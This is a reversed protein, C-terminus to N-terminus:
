KVTSYRKCHMKAFQTLKRDLTIWLANFLKSNHKNSMKPQMHVNRTLNVYDSVAWTAFNMPGVNPGGPDQRGWFPGM